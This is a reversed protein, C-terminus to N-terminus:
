SQGAESGSRTPAAETQAPAAEAPTTAGGIAQPAALRRAAAGKLKALELEVDSGASM